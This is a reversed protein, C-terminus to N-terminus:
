PGVEGGADPTEYYITLTAVAERDEASDDLILECRKDPEYDPLGVLLKLARQIDFENFEYIVREIRAYKTRYRM